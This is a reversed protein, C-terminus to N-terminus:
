IQNDNGITNMENTNNILRENLLYALGELEEQNKNINCIMQSKNNKFIVKLNFNESSLRELIFKDINNMQFEFTNVYSTKTYKVIGIFIRDFDKSYICDIRFINEKKVKLYKYIKYLIINPIFLLLVGIVIIIIDKNNIILNLSLSIFTFNTIIFIMIM